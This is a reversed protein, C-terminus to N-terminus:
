EDFTTCTSYQEITENFRPVAAEIFAIRPRHEDEDDVVSRFRAAAHLFVLEVLEHILKNSAARRYM